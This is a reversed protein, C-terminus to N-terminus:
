SEMRAAALERLQEKVREFQKRLAAARRTVEDDGADEGLLVYAIERWSLDRDIRLALLIQDDADLAQRIEIYVERAHVADGLSETWVHTMAHLISPVQSVLLERDRRPQARVHSAASRALMYCWTRVSCRGDFRRLSKWLEESLRSFAEHADAEVPLMSRLWRALEPGYARLVKETARDIEGREILARTRADLEDGDV